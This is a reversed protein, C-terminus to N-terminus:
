TKNLVNQVYDFLEKAQSDSLADVPFAPMPPKPTRIWAVFSELNSTRPSNKVALPAAPSNGGKPHCGSCNDMFVRQGAQFAGVPSTAGGYVIEGGFYGLGAVAMFCLTYVLVMFSAKGGSRRGVLFGVLLLGSLTSALILKMQFPFIMAASYSRWWGTLGTMAKTIVFALAIIMCYWAARRMDPKSRAYGLTALLFAAAISGVTVHVLIPHIPHQYNLAKLLVYPANLISEVM